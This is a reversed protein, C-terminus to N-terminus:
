KKLIKEYARREGGDSSIITGCYLYGNSTLIHQMKRNSEDTDIKVSYVGHSVTLKEVEGLVSGALGKGRFSSDITMRHVVAYEGNSIWKGVIDKYGPDGDFDICIYGSCIGDVVIFYGREKEADEKITNINPYGNQWQNINNDKLYEKADKIFEYAYSAEEKKLKRLILEM